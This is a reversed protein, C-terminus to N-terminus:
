VVILCYLNVTKSLIMHKEYLYDQILRGYQKAAFFCGATAIAM